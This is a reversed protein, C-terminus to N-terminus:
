CVATKRKKGLYGKNEVKEIYEVSYPVKCATEGLEVQVKGIDHGTKKAEETLEKVYAGVSIVFGNMTYRVRNPAKHIESAIRKLLTRLQKIDLQEDPVLSIYNSLTAWGSSAIKDEKSDIWELGLELAYDSESTVWAVTYESIMYWTAQKAWKQLQTKTMKKPEAVLGALYMADSVGSDYLEIALDHNKKVKKQIVKLDAVKVGYFPEKAGHNTFIKKTQDSGLEKIQELIESVTMRIFNVFVFCFSM